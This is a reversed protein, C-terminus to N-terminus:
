SGHTIFGQLHKSHDTYSGGAVCTGGAPCSVSLVFGQKHLHGDLYSGTATCHGASGCSTSTVQSNGQIDLAALGPVRAAQSWGSAATAAQAAPVAGSAAAGAALV